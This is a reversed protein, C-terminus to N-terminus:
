QICTAKIKGLPFLSRWTRGASVQLHGAGHVEGDPGLRGSNWSPHAVPFSYLLFSIHFTEDQFMFWIAKCFLIYLGTWSEQIGKNCIITQWHSWRRYLLGLWWGGEDDQASGPRRGQGVRQNCYRIILLICSYTHVLGDERLIIVVFTVANCNVM